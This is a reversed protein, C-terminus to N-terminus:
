VFVQCSEDVSPLYFALPGGDSADLLRLRYWAVGSYGKYGQEDWSKGAYLLPWSSDGTDPYAWAPNDETHFRWPGALETMAVRSDKFDVTQGSASWAIPLIEVFFLIACLLRAGGCSHASSQM